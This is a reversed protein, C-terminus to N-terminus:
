KRREEATVLGGTAACALRIGARALQEFATHAILEFGDAELVALEGAKAGFAGLLAPAPLDPVARFGVPVLVETGWFRVGQPLLPVTGAAGMVLVEPAGGSATEDGDSGMTWAAMLAGLQASTASDAWTELAGLTCRLATAPRAVGRDDRVLRVRLRDSLLPQPPEADIPAPVIVRELRIGTAGDAKPVGFAPLHAGLPYWRGGRQTFLEVGRLPLIRRVLIEAQLRSEPGWWLWAKDGVIQVRIEARGRLEALVALDDLPISACRVDKWTAAM